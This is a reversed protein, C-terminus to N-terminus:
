QGDDKDSYELMCCGMCDEFVKKARLQRRFRRFGPGNWIRQVREERVNGLSSGFCPIVDGRATIIMRSWPSRCVYHSLDLRNGYHKVIEELPFGPQAFRVRVRYHRAREMVESHQKRLLEGPITESTDLKKAGGGMPETRSADLRFPNFLTFNCIDLGMEEARDVMFALHEVNRRTIVTTSGLMPHRKKMSERAKRLRAIGELTKRYAGKQEVIQDHLDEPGELSVMVVLLGPRLVHRPGCAVILQATSENLLVGNTILHCRHRRAAHAVIEAMDHRILPEGGTFTILTWPGLQDVVGKIETTSLEDAASGPVTGLERYPCMLCRLNCRYTVELYVHMPPLAFGGGWRYPLGAHINTLHHYLASYDMGGSLDEKGGASNEDLATQAVV